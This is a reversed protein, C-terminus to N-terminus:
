FLVVEKVILSTAQEADPCKGLIQSCKVNGRPLNLGLGLRRYPCRSAGTRYSCWYLLWLGEQILNKEILGAAECFKEQNGDKGAGLGRSEILWAQTEGLVCLCCHRLSLFFPYAKKRVHFTTEEKQFKKNTARFNESGKFFIAYIIQRTKDM